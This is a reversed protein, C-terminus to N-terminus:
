VPPPGLGEVRLELAWAGLVRFEMSFGSYPEKLLWCRSIPVFCESGLPGRLELEYLFATVVLGQCRAYFFVQSFGSLACLFVKSFFGSLARLFVKSFGSLACFFM